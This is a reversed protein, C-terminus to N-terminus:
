RREVYLKGNEDERATFVYALHYYSSFDVVESWSQNSNRDFVTVAVRISWAYGGGGVWYSLHQTSAPAVAAKEVGDILFSLKSDTNNIFIVRTTQVPLNTNLRVISCGCLATLLALFFFLLLFNRCSRNRRKEHDSM